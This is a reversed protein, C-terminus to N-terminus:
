IVINNIYIYVGNISYVMNIYIYIIYINYIYVYMCVGNGARTADAAGLRDSSGRFSNPETTPAGTWKDRSFM